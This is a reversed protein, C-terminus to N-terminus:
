LLTTSDLSMDLHTKLQGEEEEWGEGLDGM